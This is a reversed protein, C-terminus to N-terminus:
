KYVKTEINNQKSVKIIKNLFVVDAMDNHVIGM